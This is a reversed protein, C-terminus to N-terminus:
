HTDSQFEGSSNWLEPLHTFLYAMNKKVALIDKITCKITFPEKDPSAHQATAPSDPNYDASEERVQRPDDSLYDRHDGPHKKVFALTKEIDIKWAAADQFYNTSSERGDPRAVSDATTRTQDHITAQPQETSTTASAAPTDPYLSESEISGVM